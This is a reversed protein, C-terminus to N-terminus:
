AGSESGEGRHETSAPNDNKVETSQIWGPRGGPEVPAETTAEFAAPNSQERPDSM